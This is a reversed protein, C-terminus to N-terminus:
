EMQLRREAHDRHAVVPEANIEVFLLLMPEIQEPLLESPHECQWHYNRLAAVYPEKSARGKADVSIGLSMCQAQLDKLNKM